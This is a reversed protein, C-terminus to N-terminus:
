ILKYDVCNFDLRSKWQPQRLWSNEKTKLAKGHEDKCAKHSTHIHWTSKQQTQIKSDGRKVAAEAEKAM